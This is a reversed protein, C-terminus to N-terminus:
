SESDFEDYSVIKDLDKVHRTRAPPTVSGPKQKPYGLALMAVVAFREPINLAERVSDEDFSGIWCTGLGEATAEIVMQQLAITTDVVYWKPSTKKDGCGVIVVPSETLFKAYKGESLIQRKAADKVVIFHWPQYNSASPAIRGAELVNRIIDDPVPKADYTRVSRRTRMAESVEM